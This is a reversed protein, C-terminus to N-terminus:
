SRSVRISAGSPDSMRCCTGRADRRAVKLGWLVNHFTEDCVHGQESSVMRLMAFLASVQTIRGAALDILEIEEDRKPVATLHKAAM